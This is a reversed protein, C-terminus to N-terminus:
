WDPGDNIDGVKLQFAKSDLRISEVTEFFISAVDKQISETADKNELIVKVRIDNKSYVALLLRFAYGDNNLNKNVEEFFGGEQNLFKTIEEIEKIKKENESHLEPNVSPPSEAIAGKTLIGEIFLFALLIVFTRVLTIKRRKINYVERKM